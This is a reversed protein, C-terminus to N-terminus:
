WVTHWECNSLGEEPSHGLSVYQSRFYRYGKAQMDAIGDVIKKRSTASLDVHLCFQGHGNIYNKVAFKKRSPPEIDFLAHGGNTGCYSTVAVDVNGQAARVRQLNAILDDIKM